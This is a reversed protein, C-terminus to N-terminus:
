GRGRQAHSSGKGYDGIWRVDVGAARAPALLRIDATWLPVQERRALVLYHADYAARLNLDSAVEFAEAHAASLDFARLPLSLILALGRAAVSATLGHRRVRQLASNTVEYGFLEPVALAEGREAADYMLAVAQGSFEEQFALKVAVSADIGILWSVM